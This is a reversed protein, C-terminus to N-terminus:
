QRRDAAVRSDSLIGRRTQDFIMRMYLRHWWEAKGPKEGDKWDEICTYVLRSQGDKLDEVSFTQTGGM